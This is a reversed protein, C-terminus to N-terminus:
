RDPSIEPERISPTYHRIRERVKTEIIKQQNAAPLLTPVPMLIKM